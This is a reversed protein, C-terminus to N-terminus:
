LRWRLWLWAPLAAGLLLGIAMGLWPPGAVTDGGLSALGLIAVPAAAAVVAQIAAVAIRDRNAFRVFVPLAAMAMLLPLVARSWRSWLIAIDAREGRELLEGGSMTYRPLLRRFLLDPPLGPDLGPPPPGPGLRDLRQGGGSLQLVAAGAPAHWARGDWALCEFMALRESTAAVAGTLEPVQVGVLRAGAAFWTTGDDGRWVRGERTQGALRDQVAIAHATAGPTVRDALVADVIGILLCGALLARTARRPDIGAAGLATFEGRGLMPAVTALVAALAAVPIAVNLLAPLRALFFEAKLALPASRALLPLAMFADLALFVVVVATAILTAGRLLRRSLHRDLTGPRM